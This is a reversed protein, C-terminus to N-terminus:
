TWILSPVISIWQDGMLYMSPSMFIHHMSSTIGIYFVVRHSCTRHCGGHYRISCLKWIQHHHLYWFGPLFQELWNRTETWLLVLAEKQTGGQPPILINSANMVLDLKEIVRSRSWVPYCFCTPPLKMLSLSWRYQLHKGTPRAWGRKEDTTGYLRPYHAMDRAITCSQMHRAQNQIALVVQMVLPCEWNCRLCKEEEEGNM